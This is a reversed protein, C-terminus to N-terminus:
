KTMLYLLEAALRSNVKMFGNWGDTNFIGRHNLIYNQVASKFDEDQHMNTDTATYLNCTSVWQFDPKTVTYMYQLMRQVTGDDLDEIMVYESNKEKTDYTFMAKFVPSRASLIFKNAPFSGTKTKLNTNCLLNEKYSFELNEKLTKASDLLIEKSKLSNSTLNKKGGIENPLHQM